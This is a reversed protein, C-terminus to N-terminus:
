KSSRGHKYYGYGYGSRSRERSKNLVLGVKRPDDILDLAEMVSRQSTSLAEVVLLIQGVIAALVSAGSKSLLPMSDFLVVDYVQSLEEVLHIMRRSALQETGLSHVRGTPLITLNRVDTKLLVDELKLNESSLLDTFGQGAEIGLLRCIDSKAMDSDVLVVSRDVEMALSMALNLSMFTKGEGPLTSTVLIVNSKSSSGSGGAAINRLLLRKIYRCQEAILSEANEPTVMGARGLRKLDIKVERIGTGDRRIKPVPRKGDASAPQEDILPDELRGRLGRKPSSANRLAAKDQEGLSPTDENRASTRDTQQEKAGKSDLKDLAREIINM